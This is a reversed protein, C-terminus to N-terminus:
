SHNIAAEVKTVKIAYENEKYNISLVLIQGNDASEKAFQVSGPSEELNYGDATIIWEKEELLQIYQSLDDFVSNSQYTYQKSPFENEGESEVGTVTREGVVSTISPVKDRGINYTELTAPDADDSACASLLCSFLVATFVFALLCVYKKM